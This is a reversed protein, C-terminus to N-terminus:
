FKNRIVYRLDALPGNFPNRLHVYYKKAFTVPYKPLWTFKRIIDVSDVGYALILDDIAEEHAPSISSIVKIMYDSATLISYGSIAGTDAVIDTVKFENNKRLNQITEPMALKEVSVNDVEYWTGLYKIKMVDKSPMYIDDCINAILINGKLDSVGYRFNRYTLFMNGNLLDISNYMPPLIEEGYENYIGFDNDNGLKIYRGLIREVHRYKPQILWEGKSNMLGYKSKKQVIWGRMGTMVMKKYIAPVVINGSRDKLGYLNKECFVVVDREQQAATYFVPADLVKEKPFSYMSAPINEELPISVGEPLNDDAAWVPVCLMCILVLLLKRM